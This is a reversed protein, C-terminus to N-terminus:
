APVGSWLRTTHLEFGHVPAHGVVVDPRELTESPEGSRYITVQGLEPDILWALQAGNEIWLQMKTETLRRSDSKSRIEIVFEPCIQAYGSRQEETLANWRATSIWSGDPSLLSGDPLTFGTASSFGLGTGDTAVWAALQGSVYFEQNGGIAGVPTMIVLEGERNREIRYPRNRESFQELEVDSLPSAPRITLPLALNDLQIALM